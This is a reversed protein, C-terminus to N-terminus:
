VVKELISYVDCMKCRLGYIINETDCSGGKKVKHLKDKIEFEPKEQVHKCCKCRKDSCKKVGEQVSAVVNGVTHSTCCSGYLCLGLIHCYVLEIRYELNTQYSIHLLFM